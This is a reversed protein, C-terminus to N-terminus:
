KTGTRHRLLAQMKGLQSRTLMRGSTPMEALVQQEIERLEEPSLWYRLPKKENQTAEDRSLSPRQDADGPNAPLLGM